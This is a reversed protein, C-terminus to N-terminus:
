MECISHKSNVILNRSKVSSKKHMGPKQSMKLHQYAVWISTIRVFKGFSTQIQNAAFGNINKFIVWSILKFGVMIFFARYFSIIWRKHTSIHAITHPLLPILHSYPLEHPTWVCIGICSKILDFWNKHNKVNM